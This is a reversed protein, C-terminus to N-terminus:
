EHKTAEIFFLQDKVTFGGYKQIHKHMALLRERYKEVSFDDVLWPIARLYYVVAGVDLFSYVPFAEKADVVRFGVSKLQRSAVEATWDMPQVTGKGKFWEILDTLGDGACQQTLFCGGPLLVRWIEAPVYCEHRNIVLEFEADCFPLHRNEQDATTDYVKVGLPKLKRKAVDVNPAYGETACTCPPLPSLSALIEGGGTGMDLMSNAKGMIKQVRAAYNWPLTLETKRDDLYSFDWGEFPAEMAERILREFTSDARM